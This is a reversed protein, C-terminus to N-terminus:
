SEISLELIVKENKKVPTDAEPTQKKVRGYGKVETKLGAKELIYMADNLSMNRVDPVTNKSFAVKEPHPNQENRYVDISIGKAEPMLVYDTAYIRDAIERFVPLAVEGGYFKDIRSKKLIVVCSYKPKDAPFYGVFSSNYLNDNKFEKDNIRSTGTKGAASYPAGKFGKYATGKPNAVVSDLMGRIDQLAQKSCIQAILTDVKFKITSDQSYLESVLRPKVMCGNNAIANYFTLLHLPTLTLELGYPITSITKKSWGYKSKDNTDKVYPKMSGGIIPFHLTDNFGMKYLGEIFQQQQQKTAGYHNYIARTTGV